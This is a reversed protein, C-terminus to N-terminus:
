NLDMPPRSRRFYNLGTSVCPTMHTSLYGDDPGPRGPQQQRLQQVLSTDLRNNELRARALVDLASFARAPELMLADVDELSGAHTIPHHAVTQRVLPDEQVEVTAIVADIEGLEGALRHHNVALLFHHSVEDSRPERRSLWEVEVDVVHRDAGEICVMRTHTIPLVPYLLREFAVEDSTAVAKM